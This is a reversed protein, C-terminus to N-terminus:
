TRSLQERKEKGPAGFGFDEVIFNYGYVEEGSAKDTYRNNEIRYHVILQDGKLAYQAIAEGKQRFATFQISVMRQRAEGSDKDKGAYENSILTFKCVARDGSGTITAAKALNGIFTNHQM